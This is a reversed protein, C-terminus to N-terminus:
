EYYDVRDIVRAFAVNERVTEIEIEVREGKDTNPVIVVYGRDVRALGDGQDGIEAIEVIRTEGKSVPPQNHNSEPESEAKSEPETTRETPEQNSPVSLVAFQSAETPDVYGIDVENKPVEIVYSDNQSEVVASFLCTLQESIDM